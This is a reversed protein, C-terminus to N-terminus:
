ARACSDRAVQEIELVSLGRLAADFIDKFIEQAADEGVNDRALNRIDFAIGFATQPDDPGTDGRAKRNQARMEMAAKHSDTM